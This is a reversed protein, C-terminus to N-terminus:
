YPSFLHNSVGYAPDGYVCHLLGDSSMNHQLLSLLSSQDLVYADHRSGEGPGWLDRTSETPTILGRYKLVHLRKHGDHVARQGRVSRCF